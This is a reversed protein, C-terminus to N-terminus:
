FYGYGGGYGFGGGQSFGSSYGYGSKYGGGYSGIGPVIPPVIGGGLGALGGVIGVGGVIGLGGLGGILRAKRTLMKQNGSNEELVAADNIKLDESAAFTTSLLCALICVFLKM